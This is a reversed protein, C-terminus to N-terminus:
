QLPRWLTGHSCSQDPTGAHIAGAWSFFGTGDVKILSDNSIDAYDNLISAASYCFHIFQGDPSIDLNTITMGKLADLNDVPCDIHGTVLEYVCLNGIIKDQRKYIYTYFISKSDPSWRYVGTTVLQYGKAVLRPISKLCRTEALELFLICPSDKFEVGQNQYSTEAGEYLIRRGDQSWVLLGINGGYRGLVKGKVVDVVTLVVTQSVFDSEPKVLKGQLYALQNEDKPSWRFLTGYYTEEFPGSDWIMQHTKNDMVTIRTNNEGGWSASFQGSKSRNGYKTYSPRGFIIGGTTSDNTIELANATPIYASSYDDDEPNLFQTAEASISETLVEGTQLNIRAASQLDQFLLGFNENDYWFYGRVDEPIPIDYSESTAPNIFSIKRTHQNDNTILAALINTEPNSIWAPFPYDSQLAVSAPTPLETTIATATSSTSTSLTELPQLTSTTQVTSNSCSALLLVILSGFIIRM